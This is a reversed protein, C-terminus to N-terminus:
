AATNGAVAVTQPNPDPEEGLYNAGFVLSGFQSSFNTM